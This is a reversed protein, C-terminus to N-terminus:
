EEREAHQLQDVDDVFYSVRSERSLCGTKTRRRAKAAATKASEAAAAAKLESTSAETGEDKVHSESASGPVQRSQALGGPEPMKSTSESGKVEPGQAGNFCAM